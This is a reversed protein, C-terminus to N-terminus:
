ELMDLVSLVAQEIYKDRSVTQLWLANEAPAAGIDLQLAKDAPLKVLRGNAEAVSTQERLSALYSTLHLSINRNRRDCYWKSNRDIAAWTTDMRMREAAKRKIAPIDLKGNWTNYSTAAVMDWPLSAPQYKERSQVCEYQDPLIIDPIVGKHQTSSGNVRYFQSVTINLTGNDEEKLPTARQVTGKGHTSTSGIILGRHYDQIASAFIESASASFEDVMVAMPGDYIQQVIAANGFPMMVDVSSRQQPIGDRGRVQVVPGDKILMSVMRTVEQLSGGGNRRLDFLIADAKQQQLSKLAGAVDAAVQPGFPDADQYFLPFSIYGIRKGEKLIVATKVGTEQQDLEDRELAVTLLSGTAKKVELRVVTGKSGRVLNAIEASPLGGLEKMEGDRGEGLRVIIDNLEVGSGAAAGSSELRVIRAGEDDAALAAGIGATRNSMKDRFKRAEAGSLYSTHPDMLHTYCNTYVEFLKELTAEGQMYKMSKMLRAGAKSRALVELEDANLKTSDSQQLLVYKQLVLYKVRKRRAQALARKDKAYDYLSGGDFRIEEMVDFRFPTQLLKDYAGAAEALRQRYVDTAAKLFNLSGGSKVEDDLQRKYKSLAKIDSLLFLQKLPDLKELFSNWLQESLEDNFVAPSYHNDRVATHVLSFVHQLEQANYPKQQSFVSLPLAPFFAGGILLAKKVIM